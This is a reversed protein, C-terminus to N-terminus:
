SARVKQRLLKRDIPRRRPPRALTSRYGAILRRGQCARLDTAVRLLEHEDSETLLAGATRRPGRGDRSVDGHAGCGRAIFSVRPPSAGSM